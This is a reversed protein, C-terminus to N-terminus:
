RRQLSSKPSPHSHPLRDHLLEVTRRLVDDTAPQSNVCRDIADLASRYTDKTVTSM